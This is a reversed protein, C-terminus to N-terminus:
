EEADASATELLDAVGLRAAWKRLHSWDLADGRVRLVGLVDAWQRESIENGMRYWRLKSLILDEPTAVDAEGAEGFDVRMRRGFELRDFESEGLVYVDIKFSTDFHVLNFMSRHAIAWHAMAPDLYFEERVAVYLPQVHEERLDALVDSDITARPLGFYSTGLSGVLVCPVGLRELTDMLGLTLRLPLPLM